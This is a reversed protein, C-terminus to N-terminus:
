VGKKYKKSQAFFNMWLGIFVLVIGVIMAMGAMRVFFFQSSFAEDPRQLLMMCILAGLVVLVGAIFFIRSRKVARANEPEEKPKLFGKQLM